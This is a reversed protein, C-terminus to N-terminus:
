QRIRAPWQRPDDVPRASSAAEEHRHSNWAGTEIRACRGCAARGGLDHARPRARRRIAPVERQDVEVPKSRFVQLKPPMCCRAEVARASATSGAIEQPRAEAREVLDDADM